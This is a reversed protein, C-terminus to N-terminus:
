FGEAARGIVAQATESHQGEQEPVLSVWSGVPVCVGPSSVVLVGRDEGHM